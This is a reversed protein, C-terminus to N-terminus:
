PDPKYDDLVWSGDNGKQVMGKNKVVWWSAPAQNKKAVDAKLYDGDKNVLVVQRRNDLDFGKGVGKTGAVMHLLPELQHAAGIVDAM